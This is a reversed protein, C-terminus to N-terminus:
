FGLKHHTGCASVERARGFGADHGRLQLAEEVAHVLTPGGAIKAAFGAAAPYIAPPGIRQIFDSGLELVCGTIPDDGYEDKSWHHFLLRFLRSVRLGM